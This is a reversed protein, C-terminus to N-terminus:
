WLFFFFIIREKLSSLMPFIFNTTMPGLTSLVVVRADDIPVSNFCFTMLHFRIIGLDLTLTEIKVREEEPISPLVQTELQGRCTYNGIKSLSTEKLKDTTM